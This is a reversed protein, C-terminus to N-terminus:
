GLYNHLCWENKKQKTEEIRIGNPYSYVFEERRVILTRSNLTLYTLLLKIQEFLQILFLSLLTALYKSKVNLM